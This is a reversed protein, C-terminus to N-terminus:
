DGEYQNGLEIVTDIIRLRRAFMNTICSAIEMRETADFPEGLAEVMETYGHLKGADFNERFAHARERTKEWIDHTDM